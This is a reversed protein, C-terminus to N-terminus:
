KLVEQVLVGAEFHATQRYGIKKILRTAAGFDRAVQKSEHADSSLAVPIGLAFCRSLISPHPYMEKIPKHLGNTNLEVAMGQTKIKQLLPEALALLDGRYRCGFVKILDLHGVLQFLGTEVAQELLKFYKEYLTNNDWNRYEGQYDPHDFAWRGLDHVSGIVYDYPKEALISRLEEERGPAYDVELGLLVQFRPYEQQLAYIVKPDIDGRYWEHDTFGLGALGRAIGQEVYPRLKESTYKGGIHGLPHTHCDYIM